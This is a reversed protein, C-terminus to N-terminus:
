YFPGSAYLPNSDSPNKATFLNNIILNDLFDRKKVLDSSVFDLHWSTVLGRSWGIITVECQQLIAVPVLDDDVKQPNLLTFM